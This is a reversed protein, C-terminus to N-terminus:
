MNAHFIFPAPHCITGSLANAVLATKCVVEVVDEVVVVEDLVVVVEDVEVVVVVSSRDM